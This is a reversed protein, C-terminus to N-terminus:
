IRKRCRTVLTIGLKTKDWIEGSLWRNSYDKKLDIGLSKVYERAKKSNYGMMNIESETITCTFFLSVDLTNLKQLQKKTTM